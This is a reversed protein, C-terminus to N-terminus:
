SALITGAAADLSQFTFPHYQKKGQNLTIHGLYLNLRKAGCGALAHRGRLAGFLRSKLASTVNKETKLSMGRQHM